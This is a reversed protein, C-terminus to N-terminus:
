PNVLMNHKDKLIRVWGIALLYEEGNYQNHIEWLTKGLSQSNDKAIRVVNRAISWGRHWTPLSENSIKEKRNIKIFETIQAISGDMAEIKAVHPLLKRTVAGNGCGLDLLTDDKSFQMKEIIDEAIETIDRDDTGLGRGTSQYGDTYITAMRDYEEIWTKSKM